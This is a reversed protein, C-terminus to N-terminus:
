QCRAKWAAMTTQKQSESFKDWAEEARERTEKIGIKWQLDIIAQIGKERDSKQNM